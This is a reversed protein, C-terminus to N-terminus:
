PGVPESNEQGEGNAFDLFAPFLIVTHTRYNVRMARRVFPMVFPTTAAKDRRLPCGTAPPKVGQSERGKRRPSSAVARNKPGNRCGDNRWTSM